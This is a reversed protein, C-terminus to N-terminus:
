PCTRREWDVVCEERHVVEAEAEALIPQTDTDTGVVTDETDTDRDIHNDIDVMDQAIDVAAQLINHIDPTDVM